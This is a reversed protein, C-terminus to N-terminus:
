KAKKIYFNKFHNIIDLIFDLTLLILLGCYSILALNNEQQIIIEFQSILFFTLLLKIFFYRNNQM